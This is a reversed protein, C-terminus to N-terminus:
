NWFTQFVAKTMNGCYVVNGVQAILLGKFTRTLHRPSCVNVHPMCSTLNWLVLLEFLFCLGLNQASCCFENCAVAQQLQCKTKSRVHYAIDSRSYYFILLVPQPLFHVLM